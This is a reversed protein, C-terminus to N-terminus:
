KVWCRGTNTTEVNNADFSTTVINGGTRMEVTLRRCKTDAYQPSTNKATASMKYTAPGAGEVTLAYHGEPSESPTGVPMSAASAYAPANGRFREQVQQLRVLAAMADARRSKRVSDMYSPVAILALVGLVAVVIMLEILTFGRQLSPSRPTHRM